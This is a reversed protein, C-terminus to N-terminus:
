FKYTFYGVKQFSSECKNLVICVLYFVDTLWIQGMLWWNAVEQSLSNRQKAYAMPCHLSFIKLWPQWQEESKESSNKKNRFNM